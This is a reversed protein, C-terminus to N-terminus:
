LYWFSAVLGASQTSKLLLLRGAEDYDRTETMDPPSQPLVGPHRFETSKRPPGGLLRLLGRRHATPWRGSAPADPTLGM